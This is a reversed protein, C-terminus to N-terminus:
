ENPNFLGNAEVPPLLAAGGKSTEPPSEPAPSDLQNCSGKLGMAPLPFVYSPQLMATSSLFFDFTLSLTGDEDIASM